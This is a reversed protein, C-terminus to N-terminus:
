ESRIARSLELFSTACAAVEDDDDAGTAGGAALGPSTDSLLSATRRLASSLPAAVGKLVTPKLTIGATLLQRALVAAQEGTVTAASSPPSSAGGATMARQLDTTLTLLWGLLRSLLHSAEEASSGDDGGPLMANLGAKIGKVDADSPLRSALVPLLACLPDRLSPYLPKAQSAAPSVPLQSQRAAAQLHSWKVLEAQAAGLRLMCPLADVLQTVHAGPDECLYSSAARACAVLLPGVALYRVPLSAAERATAVESGGPGGPASEAGSAVASAFRGAAEAAAVSAGFPMVGELLPRLDSNWATGIFELFVTATQDLSQHLSILFDQSLSAELSNHESDAGEAVVDVLQSYNDAALTLLMAQADYNRGLLEMRQARTLPTVNVDSLLQSVSKSQATKTAGPSAASTSPASSPPASTKTAAAKEVAGAGGAQLAVTAATADLVAAYELDDCTSKAIVGLLRAFTVLFAGPGLPKSAASDSSSDIASGKSSSLWAAGFHKFLSATLLLVNTQRNCISATDTKVQGGANADGSSEFLDESSAMVRLIGKQLSDLCAPSLAQKTHFVADDLLLSLAQLATNATHADRVSALMDALVAGTEGVLCCAIDAKGTSTYAEQSSLQADKRRKQWRKWNSAALLACECLTHLSNTAEVNHPPETSTTKASDMLLRLGESISALMGGLPVDGLDCGSALVGHLIAAADNLKNNSNAAASSSSCERLTRLLRPVAPRFRGALHTDQSFSAMINLAMADADDFGGQKGAPAQLLGMLFRADIADLLRARLSAAPPDASSLVSPPLYRQLLLLGLVREGPKPSALIDLCRAIEPSSLDMKTCPRNYAFKSHYCEIEQPAPPGLADVLPATRSLLVAASMSCSTFCKCINACHFNSGAHDHIM